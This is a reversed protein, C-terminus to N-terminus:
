QGAVEREKREILELLKVAALSYFLADRALGMAVLLAIKAQAELLRDTLQGLTMGDCMESVAAEAQENCSITKLLDSM